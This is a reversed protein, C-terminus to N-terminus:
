EDVWGRNKINLSDSAGWPSTDKRKEIAARVVGYLHYIEDRSLMELDSVSLDEVNSLDM